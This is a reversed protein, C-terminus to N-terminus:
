EQTTPPSADNYRELYENIKFVSVGHEQAKSHLANDETVLPWKEKKAIALFILDSSKL